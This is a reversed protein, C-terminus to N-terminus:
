AKEVKEVKEVRGKMNFSIDLNDNPKCDPLVIEGSVWVKDCKLGTVRPDVSGLYLSTGSILRGTSDTFSIPSVGLLRFLM